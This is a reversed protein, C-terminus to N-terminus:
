VRGVSTTAQAEIAATTTPKANQLAFDGIDLFTAGKLVFIATVTNNVGGITDSGVFVEAQDAIGPVSTASVAIGAAQVEQQLAAKETNWAAQAQDASAVQALIVYAEVTGSTYGCKM